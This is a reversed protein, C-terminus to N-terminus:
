GTGAGTQADGEAGASSPNKHREGIQLPGPTRELGMRAGQAQERLKPGTRQEEDRVRQIRKRVFDLRELGARIRGERIRKVGQQVANWELTDQGMRQGIEELSMVLIEEDTEWAFDRHTVLAM